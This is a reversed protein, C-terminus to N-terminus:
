KKRWWSERSLNLKQSVSEIDKSFRIADVYYGATPAFFGDSKAQWFANLKLMHEERIWKCLISSAASPFISDGEVQFQITMPSGAWNAQYESRHQGEAHVAFWEQDFSAMLFSQYRNRGGHKDCYVFIPEDVAVNRDIITRALNLSLESLLSSKNGIRDVLRNFEPEDIVRARADLMELGLQAMKMEAGQFSSSELQRAIDSCDRPPCGEGYWPVQRLRECDEPSIWALVEDLSQPRRSKAITGLLFQAGSLLSAHGTRGHNILKSDGVPVHKSDKRLPKAQFEPALMQGLECVDLERPSRWATASVVLPGMNPGYGAEDIGIILKTNPM